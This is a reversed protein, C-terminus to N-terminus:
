RDAWSSDKCSPSWIHVFDGAFKDRKQDNEACDIVTGSVEVAQAPEAGGDGEAAAITVTQRQLHPQPGVEFYDTSSLGLEEQTGRVWYVVKVRPRTETLGSLMEKAATSVAEPPLLKTYTNLVGTGSIVSKRAQFIFDSPSDPLGHAAHTSNVAAGSGVAISVGTARIVKSGVIEELVIDQVDVGAYVVGGAAHITTRLSTEIAAPGGVPYFIGQSANYLAGALLYASSDAATIGEDGGVSSLGLLVAVAEPSNEVDLNHVM